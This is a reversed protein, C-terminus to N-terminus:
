YIFLQKLIKKMVGDCVPQVQLEQRALRVRFELAKLLFILLFEVSLDRDRGARLRFCFCIDDDCVDVGSVEGFELM